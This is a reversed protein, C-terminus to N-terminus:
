TMACGEEIEVRMLITAEEVVTSLTDIRLSGDLVLTTISLNNLFKKPAICYLILFKM